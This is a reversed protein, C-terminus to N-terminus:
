LNFPSSKILIISLDSYDVIVADLSDASPHGCSLGMGDRIVKRSGFVCEDGYIAFDREIEAHL